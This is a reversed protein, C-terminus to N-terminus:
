FGFFSAARKTFDEKGIGYTKCLNNAVDKGKAYDGSELIQQLQRGLPTNAKDPNKALLDKAFAYIDQEQM